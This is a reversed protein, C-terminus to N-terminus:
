CRQFTESYNFRDAPYIDFAAEVIQGRRKFYHQCIWLAPSRAKTSVLKTVNAPLAIARIEQCVETIREGFQQEILAYIAVQSEVESVRLAPHVFVETHCIPNSSDQSRRLSEIRM